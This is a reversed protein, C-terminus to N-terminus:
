STNAGSFLEIYGEEGLEDCAPVDYPADEGPPVSWVGAGM